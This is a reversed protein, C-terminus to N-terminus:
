SIIPPNTLLIIKLGFLRQSELIVRLAIQGAKAVFNRNGENENNSFLYLTFWWINFTLELIEDFVM